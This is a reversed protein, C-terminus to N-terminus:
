KWKPLVLKTRLWNQLRKQVLKMGTRVRGNYSSSRSFNPIWILVWLSNLGSGVFSAAIVAAFGNGGKGDDNFIPFGKSPIGFALEEDDDDDQDEDNIRQIYGESSRKFISRILAEEQENLKREKEPNEIIETATFGLIKEAISSFISAQISRSEDHINARLRCKPNTAFQKLSWKNYKFDQQYMSSTGTGCEKCAMYYFPQPIDRFEVHVKVLIDQQEDDIHTVPTIQSLNKHSIGPTSSFSPKNQLFLVIEKWNRLKRAKDSPPNILVVLRHSTTVEIGNYASIIMRRGVVTPYSKARVQETLLIGVDQHFEEWLSLRVYQLRKLLRGLVLSGNNPFVVLGISQNLTGSLHTPSETNEVRRSDQDWSASPKDSCFVKYKEDSFVMKQTKTYHGFPNRKEEVTVIATWPQDSDNLKDIEVKNAIMKPACPAM